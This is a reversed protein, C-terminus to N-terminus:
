VGDPVEEAVRKLYRRFRARRLLQVAAFYLAEAFITWVYWFPQGLVLCLGLVLMQTSLGLNVLSATSFLDAWALRLELPAVAYPRGALREFRRRELREILRDQPALLADYLGKFLRYLVPPAGIPPTAEPERPSRELRYLREAGFDWSLMLTLLVFAALALPPPGHRALAAFLAANVVLDMGTDFYRGMLTVRGTARALGGDMNDLLTKLQLLLAAWLLGVGRPWAILWAAALGCAAHLAVLWLPNLGLRALARVGGQALPQILRMLLESRPRPKAAPAPTM